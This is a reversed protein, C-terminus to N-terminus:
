RQARSDRLSTDVHRAKAMAMRDKALTNFLSQEQEVHLKLDAEIASLELRLAEMQARISQQKRDLEFRRQDAQQQLMLSEAQERAEQALRASGTLVGSPGIYTDVLVIGHDTLRFERVQNSHAMGRSKLVYLLRNREGDTEIDRVMLWTDMLSSIGMETSEEYGGGHTLSTFLATIARTKFYDILRTLMSKAENQTGTGVLNTVPDMVVVAPKFEETMRHMTVLHSELGCLTPRSAHIRLQGKKIWPELDIGISRMNRILQGPSEEFLFHLCREGRRCTAEALHAALSTKGTGATGSVLVSSGKYYGKGGLMADLSAVGSSVRQTGAKHGLGLTSIPLVSLGRDGILFPYEDTGHRSGRYKVVRLRRTAVQDNVRHDLLIVCDSIYEELGNRTLSGGGREATIVATVGKDKFWRFLRRLESRLIATNSLGAFLTEVSDLAVRKAGIADIAFGLRVFLGELNYDDTEHIEGREIHVYDIVLKKHAILEKLRFGLSASNQALEEANEDFAVLVGPEQYQTVGHVLFEVAFLTKGSGADGCILTPRGAPLGGETIDDMGPIGTPAKPLATKLLSDNERRDIRARSKRGTTSDARRDFRVNTRSM